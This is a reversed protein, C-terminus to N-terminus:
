LADASGPVIQLAADSLRLAEANDGQQQRIVGLLHLVHFHNPEVQLIQEYVPAAEAVNGSRHLQVARAMKQALTEIEHPPPKAFAAELATALTGAM